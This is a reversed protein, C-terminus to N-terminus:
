NRLGFEGGRGRKWGRRRRAGRRLAAREDGAVVLAYGAVVGANAVSGEPSLWRSAEVSADGSNLRVDGAFESRGAGKFPRRDPTAEAKPLRVTM